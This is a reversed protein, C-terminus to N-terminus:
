YELRMEYLRKGVYEGTSITQVKDVYVSYDYYRTEGNVEEKRGDFNIMYRSVEEYVDKFAESEGSLLTLRDGDGNECYFTFDNGSYFKEIREIFIKGDDSALLYEPRDYDATQYYEDSLIFPIAINVSRKGLLGAFGATRINSGGDSDSTNYGNSLLWNIDLTEIKDNLYKSYIYKVHPVLPMLTLNGNEWEFDPKDIIYNDNRYRVLRGDDYLFKKDPMDERYDIMGEDNLVFVNRFDYPYKEGEYYEEVHENIVVTNDDGYDISVKKVYELENEDGRFITETYALKNGTYKLLMDETYSTGDGHDKKIQIRKPCYYPVVNGEDDSSGKQTVTVTVTEGACSIVIGAKRSESDNNPSVSVDVTCEGAMGSDPSISIWDLTDSKTVRTVSAYWADIATFSVKFDGGERSSFISKSGSISINGSDESETCSSVFAVCLAIVLYVLKKM